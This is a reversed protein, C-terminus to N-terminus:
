LRGGEGWKNMCWFWDAFIYVPSTVGEVEVQVGKQKPLLVHALAELLMKVENIKFSNKLRDESGNVTAM